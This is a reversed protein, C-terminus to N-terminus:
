LRPCVFKPKVVAKKNWNIIKTAGLELAGFTSNAQTLGTVNTDYSLGFRWDKYDAGLFLPIDMSNNLRIGVGANFTFEKEENVLISFLSQLLIQNGNSTAQYLITPNWVLNDSVSYYYQMFANFRRNLQTRTNQGGPLTDNQIQLQPALLHDSAIGIRLDADKGVPTTYMFGLMWDNVSINSNTPNNGMPRGNQIFNELTIDQGGTISVPTIPDEDGINFGTSYSGYKLGVTFIQTQKKNLSLHYALSLGTYQRRFGAAGVQSRSYNIGASVWDNKRFGFPINGDLGLSIDNFENGTQNPINANPDNALNDPTAVLPRGQNRGIVNVRLNGYFAGTFTPSIINPAFQWYTNHFDQASLSGMSLLVFSFIIFRLKM